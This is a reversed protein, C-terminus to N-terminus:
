LHTLFTSAGAIVIGALRDLIEGWLRGLFNRVTCSMSSLISQEVYNEGYQQPPNLFTFLVFTARFIIVISGNAGSVKFDWVNLFSDYSTRVNSQLGTEYWSQLGGKGM